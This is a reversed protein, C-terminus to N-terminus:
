SSAMHLNPGIAQEALEFRASGPFKAPRPTVGTPTRALTGESVHANEARLNERPSVIHGEVPVSSNTEARMRNGPSQTPDALCGSPVSTM